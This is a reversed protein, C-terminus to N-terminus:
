APTNCTSLLCFPEDFTKQTPGDGFRTFRGPVNSCVKCSTPLVNTTLAIADERQQGTTNPSTLASNLFAPKMVSFRGNFTPMIMSRLCLPHRIFEIGLQMAGEDICLVTFRVWLLTVWETMVLEKGRRGECGM